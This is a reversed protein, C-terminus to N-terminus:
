YSELYLGYSYGEKTYIITTSIPIGGAKTLLLFKFQDWNDLCKPTKHKM